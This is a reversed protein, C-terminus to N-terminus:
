GIPPRMSGWGLLAIGLIGSPVSAMFACHVRRMKDSAIRSVLYIQYLLQEEIEEPTMGMAREKFKRCGMAAIDEFYILSGSAKRNVPVYVWAAIAISGITAIGYFAAVVILVVREADWQGQTMIPLLRELRTALVGLLAIQLAIVPAAKTDATRTFRIARQLSEYHSKLREEMSPRTTMSVTM